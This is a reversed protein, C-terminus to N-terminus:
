AVTPTLWTSLTGRAVVERGRAVDFAYTCLPLAMGSLRVTAHLTEGVPVRARTFEVGRAGVLYGVRPGAVGAERFRRLAESAAAAQAAMELAVLAPASGAADFASRGPVRVACSVGGDMESEIEEVLRMPPRHPLLDDLGPFGSAPRAHARTGAGSSSMPPPASPGPRAPEGLLVVGDAVAEAGRRVALRVRGDADASLVHLELGEGPAVLRRLRLTAIGRLGPPFGASALARSALDLLGVAPLIPRGPFHGEYLPGSPPVEITLRAGDGLPAV